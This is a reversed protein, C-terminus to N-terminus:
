EAVVGADFARPLAAIADLWGHYQELSFPPAGTLYHNGFRQGDVEWEILYLRHDSAFGRIRDVQWNQNAPVEIEGEVIPRTAGAETVRYGVRAPLLADNSVVVPFHKGPGPEGVIVCVPQQVRRIYHYALKIGFYYDVVSDSFQPWGDILNWWLIGSTRWKRLRTSEIFFKVAEAEVIQSALAFTDLDDPITGFLEQVQNAMLRIRDRDIARHNWHYV